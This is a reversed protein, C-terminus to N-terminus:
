HEARRGVMKGLILWLGKKGPVKWRQAKSIVANSAGPLDVEQGIREHLSATKTEDQKKIGGPVPRCQSKLGGSSGM